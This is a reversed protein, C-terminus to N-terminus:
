LGGVLSLVAPKIWAYVTAHPAVGVVILILGCVVLVSVEDPKEKDWLRKFEPDVDNFVIGKMFKLIYAASFIVAPAALVAMIPQVKFVGFLIMIEAAFGATGPLATSAFCAVAAWVALKPSLTALGGFSSLERDHRRRYLAGIFYFLVGTAVGHAAMQLIAGLYGEVTFSFLGLVVFGMHSVSSYAILRKADTQAWAALAGFIIGFIALIQIFTASQRAVEPFLPIAVVALGYTGMKLLVGALVISGATPAETHADPLWTHLPWLPIKVFFAIVFGAFLMPALPFAGGLFTMTGRLAYSFEPSALLELDFTQPLGPTVALQIGIAVVSFLMPLSGVFTFMLFKLSAYERNKGGWLLILLYMPILVTEYCIVFLLLDRALFVGYLSLQIAFILVFHWALGDEKKGGTLERASALVALLTSFATVWIMLYGIPELGFKIQANLASIWSRQMLVEGTGQLLFGLGCATLLGLAGTLIAAGRVLQKNRRFVVIALSGIIPLLCLTLALLKTM